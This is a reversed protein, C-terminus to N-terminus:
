LVKEVCIRADTRVIELDSRDRDRVVQCQYRVVYGFKAPDSPQTDLIPFQLAASGVANM